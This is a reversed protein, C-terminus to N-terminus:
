LKEKQSLAAFNMFSSYNTSMVFRSETNMNKETKHYLWGPFLVIDGTKVPGVPYYTGDIGRMQTGRAFGWHYELPDRFMITGSNEPVNIYYVAVFECGRHMHEETWAGLPHENIWSDTPAYPIGNIKWANLVQDFISDLYNRYGELEEWMHPCDKSLRSYAVSSKGGGHEVDANLPIQEEISKYREIVKKFDTGMYNYKLICPAWPDLIEM